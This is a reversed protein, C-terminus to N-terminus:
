ITQNIIRIWNHRLFMLQAQSLYICCIKTLADTLKTVKEKLKAEESVTAEWKARM